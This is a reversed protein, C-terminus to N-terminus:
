AATDSTPRWHLAGEFDVSRYAALLAEETCDTDKLISAAITAAGLSCHTVTGVQNTTTWTVELWGMGQPTISWLRVTGDSTESRPSAVGFRYRMKGDNGLVSADGGVFRDPIVPAQRVSGNEARIGIDTLLEREEERDAYHELTYLDLAPDLTENEVQPTEIAFSLSAWELPGAFGEVGSCRFSAVVMAASGEPVPVGMVDAAERVSVNEPLRAEARAKDVLVVVVMETCGLLDHPRDFANNEASPGDNGPGHEALCGSLMSAFLVCLVLCVRNM